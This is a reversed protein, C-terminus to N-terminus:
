TAFYITSMIKPLLVNCDGNHVLAKGQKNENLVLQKLNEIREENTEIFHQKTFGAANQLAISVSGPGKEGTDRHIWEGNGAFADIYYRQYARKTASVFYPLYREIFKLKDISWEGITNEKDGYGM